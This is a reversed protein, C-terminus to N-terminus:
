AIHRQDLVERITGLLDQLSYPKQLFRLGKDRITPWQSKQDAYGSSLVVSLEPERAILEDVLQVGSKGPLVVDSFVIDFAQEAREFAELGEEASGVDYVDYGTEKLARTAFDRVVPEDEVLLIRENHGQVEREDVRAPEVQSIGQDSFQLYIRFTTGRDPESCAHIWGGQQKVCGYVVSLGLGTGKSKEKTTFFPEFIHDLVAKHMGVGTDQISLCVFEGPCADPSMKSAAEDIIVNETRITVTGGQPMADRANVVLNLFIQEIHSPDANVSRAEDNLERVLEIDEGILRKMMAQMGSVTQNLDMARLQVPQKRSFALLQHTLSAAREAADLVSKILERNPDGDRMRGHLLQSYGSIATLLNNFDHAIGGALQGVAEMKQSQRLEEEKALLEQEVRIRDTIDVSLGIVGVVNGHEDLYPIKDSMEWREGEPSHFPQIVARKSQGTSIITEHDAHYLGAFAPSIEYDTKGLWQGAPVGTAAAMARNVRIYRGDRDEYYIFAPISDFITQIEERQRAVETAASKREIALGIQDSVFTLLDLDNDGFENQDTYSQVVLAGTVESNVRLPVGLWIKSPSGIMEILGEETMQDARARTLLLPEGSRIVYATQTKGAPFSQFQDQDQSDRFYPLSITDNEKDYLAIFFNETDLFRGLEEQITMFLQDLDETEHVANAIRYALHQVNKM